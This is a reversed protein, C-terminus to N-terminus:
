EFDIMLIEHIKGERKTVNAYTQLKTVSKGPKDGQKSRSQSITMKEERDRM